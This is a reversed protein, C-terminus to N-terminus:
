CPEFLDPLAEVIAKEMADFPEMESAMRCLLCKSNKRQLKNGLEDFYNTEFDYLTKVTM